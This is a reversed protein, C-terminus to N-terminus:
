RGLHLVEQFTWDNKTWAADFVHKVKTEHGQGEFNVWIDDLYM